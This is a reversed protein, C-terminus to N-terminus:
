LKTKLIRISSVVDLFDEEGKWTALNEGRVEIETFNSFFWKAIYSSRALLPKAKIGPWVVHFFEENGRFISVNYEYAHSLIVCLFLILLLLYGIKIDFKMRDELAAMLKKKKM